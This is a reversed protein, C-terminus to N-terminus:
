RGDDIRKKSTINANREVILQRDIKWQNYVTYLRGVMEAVCANCWSSFHEVHIAENYVKQLSQFVPPDINRIFGATTLSEYLFAHEKLVVEHEATFKGM